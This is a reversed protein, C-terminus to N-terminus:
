NTITASGIIASNESHATPICNVTPVENAAKPTPLLYASDLIKVAKTKHAPALHSYRMTMNISAHGLLEQVARLDVGNMVLHSAFTHRLDHFRLDELKVKETLRTFTKNTDTLEKNADHEGEENKRNTPFVLGKKFRSPLKHLTETLTDDMSIMRKKGSKAEQVTIIRNPFDVDTWKLKLIEGRRMGTHLAMVLLPKFREGAGSLLADIEAATLFRTRAGQQEPPVGLARASMVDAAVPDNSLVIQNLRRATGNDMAVIADAIVFQPRVTACIDLISEHIGAWHLINKPWGYRSGPVVGFMNKMSLTVGTWHHTKLKPM